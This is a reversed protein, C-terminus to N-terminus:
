EKITHLISFNLDHIMYEFSQEFSRSSGLYQIQLGDLTGTYNSLLKFIVLREKALAEDYSTPYADTPKMRYAFKVLAATELQIGRAPQQRNGASTTAGIGVAYVLHALSGPNRGLFEPPYRSNTFGSLTAMKTALASRIQDFGINM